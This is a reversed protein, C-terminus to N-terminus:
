WRCALTALPCMFRVVCVGDLGEYGPAWECTRVRIVGEKSARWTGMASYVTSKDHIKTGAATFACDSM